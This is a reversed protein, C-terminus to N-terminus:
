TPVEHSMKTCCANVRDLPQMYESWKKLTDPHNTISFTKQNNIVNGPILLVIKPELIDRSNFGLCLFYEATKNYKISFQWYPSQGTQYRLCSSKVDIKFGKGCVFGYGPNSYPMRQINDFFNSLAREAIYVGLYVSSNKSESMPKSGYRYASENSLERKRDKHTRAWKSNYISKCAKCKKGRKDFNDLEKTQKCTNCKM